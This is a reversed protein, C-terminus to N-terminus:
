HRTPPTTWNVAAIGPADMLASATAQSCMLKLQLPAARDEQSAIEIMARVDRLDDPTGFLIRNPLDVAILYRASGKLWTEIIRRWESDAPLSAAYDAALTLNGREAILAHGIRPKQTATM